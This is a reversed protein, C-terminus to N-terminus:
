EPITRLVLGPIELNRIRHRADSRFSPPPRAPHFKGGIGVMDPTITLARGCSSPRPPAIHYGGFVGKLAGKRGGNNVARSTGERAATSFKGMFEDVELALVAEVGEDKKVAPSPSASGSIALAIWPSSPRWRWSISSIAESFM